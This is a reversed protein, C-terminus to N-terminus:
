NRNIKRSINGLKKKMKRHKVRKQLSMKLLHNTQKQKLLHILKEADMEPSPALKLIDLPNDM